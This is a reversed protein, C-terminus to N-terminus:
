EKSRGKRLGDMLRVLGVGLLMGCGILRLIDSGHLAAIRPKSLNNFLVLSGWLVLFLDAFRSRRLV